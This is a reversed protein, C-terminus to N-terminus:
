IKQGIQPIQLEAWDALASVHFQEFFSPCKKQGDKRSPRM